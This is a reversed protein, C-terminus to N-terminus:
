LVESITYRHKGSPHSPLEDIFDFDIRCDAGMVRRAGTAIEELETKAPKGNASVLKFVVHTYGKQVVQFKLVWFRHYLLHTFYEGDVLTRDRTRFVDVTRGSVHKLVQLGLHGPPEAALVGRDGIRYRLLPMAYNTLCTVLINGEVGAPVPQGAEDVIELFSNWPAGWLGNFGPLECAIDSVERSGYLNFVKCGFVQAIKERMFPYLTGASTVVARQPVVEIDEREAFRALEYIAQAYAVILSPRLRNLTEIFERMRKASVQFANLWTTRTLWNFFRAKRSKTGEALDRESGWLRVVPAGVESGLLSYYFLSLAVSRDNYQADQM